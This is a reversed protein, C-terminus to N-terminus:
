VTDGRHQKAIENAWDWIIESYSGDGMMMNNAHARLAEEFMPGAGKHIVIYKDLEAQVLKTVPDIFAKANEYNRHQLPANLWVEQAIDNALNQKPM